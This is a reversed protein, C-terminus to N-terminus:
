KEEQMEGRSSQRIGNVSGSTPPYTILALHLESRLENSKKKEHGSEKTEFESKGVQSKGRDKAEKLRATGIGM